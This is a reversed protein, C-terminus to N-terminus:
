HRTQTRAAGTDGIWWGMPTRGVGVGVDGVVLWWGGVNVHWKNRKKGVSGLRFMCGLFIFRGIERRGPM